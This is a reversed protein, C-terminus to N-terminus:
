GICYVLVVPIIVVPSVALLVMVDDVVHRVLARLM